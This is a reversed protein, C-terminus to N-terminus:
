GKMLYLYGEAVEEPLGVKGTLLKAEFHKFTAAKADDSLSEWM